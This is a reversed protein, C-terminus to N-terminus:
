DAAELQKLAYYMGDETNRKTVFDAQQKVEDPANGMAIGVGAHILMELDNYNDGIAAIQEKKLNNEEMLVQIAHYKSVNPAIIELYTDKSRYCDIALDKQKLLKELEFIDKAEGMCLIKHVTEPLEGGLREAKEGTILEEQKVWKSKTINTYWTKGSFINFSYKGSFGQTLSFIEAVVKQNLPVSLHVIEEGATAQQVVYAGNYCIIPAKLHLKDAIEYMSKPARASALIFDIQRSALNQVAQAVRLTVEHEANLLTGDIDSFIMQIKQMKKEELDIPIISAFKKTIAQPITNKVGDCIWFDLKSLEIGRYATKKKLKEQEAILIIKRSREVVKQKVLADEFDDYYIGDGEIGGAGLFAYDFCVRDLTELASESYYFRNNRSFVGGLLVMRVRENQSLIQANDLSHTYITCPVSIKKCLQLATTSVDLFIVMNEKIFASARQAIEDKENSFDVTREQFGKLKKATRNSLIGGRTRMALNEDVLRVIDRRVTDRSAGVLRMIEQTTLEERLELEELILQIRKEQNM